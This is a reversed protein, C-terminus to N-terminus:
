RGAEVYDLASDFSKADASEHGMRPVDFLKAQLGSLAYGEHYIDLISGYRFDRSGTIFTFRVTKAAEVDAVTAKFLGYSRDNAGSSSRVQPIPNYFDAGCSQITGRFLNPQYFGLRGAMRAGGSFGAVYIRQPDVRYIRQM